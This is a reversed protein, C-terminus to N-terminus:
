RDPGMAMGVAFFPLAVQELDLEEVEAREGAVLPAEGAREVLVIAAAEEAVVERLRGLRAPVEGADVGGAAVDLADLEGPQHTGAHARM